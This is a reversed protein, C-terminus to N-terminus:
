MMIKDMIKFVDKDFKSFAFWKKGLDKLSAGFHYVDKEDIIIFRDHSRNFVKVEISFCQKEFKDIGLKLKDSLLTNKQSITRVVLANIFIGHLKNLLLFIYPPKLM